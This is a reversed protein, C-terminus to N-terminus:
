GPVVANLPPSWTTCYAQAKAVPPGDPKRGRGPSIVQWSGQPVYLDPAARMRWLTPGGQRTGQRAYRRAQRSITSCGKGGVVEANKEANTQGCQKRRLHKQIKLPHAPVIGNVPTTEGKRLEPFLAISMLKKMEATMRPMEARDEDTLVLPLVTGDAPEYGRVTAPHLTHQRARSSLKNLCQMVRIQNSAVNLNELSIANFSRSVVGAQVRECLRQAAASDEIAIAHHQRFGRHFEGTDM